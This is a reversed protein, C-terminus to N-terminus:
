DAHTVHDNKVFIAFNVNPKVETFIIKSKFDSISLHLAEM